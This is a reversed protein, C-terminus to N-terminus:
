KALRDYDTDARPKNEKYCSSGYTNYKYDMVKVHGFWWLKENRLKKLFRYVELEQGIADNM